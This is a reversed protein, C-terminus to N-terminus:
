ERPAAAREIRDIIAEGLGENPIPGFAITAAGSADARKMYAFLNSAAERLNSSPSLDLVLTAKDEGALPVGGFRILAEGPRVERADLRVSATPAYHTALM